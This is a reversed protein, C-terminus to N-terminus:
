AISRIREVVDACRDASFSRQPPLSALWGPIQEDTIAACAPTRVIATDGVVVAAYVKVIFDRDESAIWHRMREADRTAGELPNPLSVWRGDFRRVEWANGQRRLNGPAPLEGIVAVGFPGVIVNRIPRGDPLRVSAAVVYEDGLAPIARMIPGLNPRRVLTAAVMSLRIAGVIAFCPPVVLWLGWIVAGVIMQDPTPRVVAPALGRVVPTAFALWALGIGGVLLFGGVVTGLVVPWFTPRMAHTPQILQMDADHRAQLRPGIVV